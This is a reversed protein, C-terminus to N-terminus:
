VLMPPLADVRGNVIMARVPIPSTSAKVKLVVIYRCLWVGSMEEILEKVKGFRLM